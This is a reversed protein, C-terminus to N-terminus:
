KDLLQKVVGDSLWNAIAQRNNKDLFRIQDNKNQINGLEIYVTPANLNRLMFLNRTTVTGKYGRGPQNKDYKDKITEYFSNAMKRSQEVDEQYYFFIDIRKENPRSDLHIIITHQSKAKKLNAKYYSNIIDARQKLRITQVPSISDGNILYEDYSPELYKEDRIGDSTDRVIVYVTASHEMLARAFRLIFDYAYEDECLLHGGSKGTAGPDPGGHGSKLYFVHGKLKKDKIKVKQYTKGFLPEIVFSKKSSVDEDKSEDKITKSDKLPEKGKEAKPTKLKSKQPSDTPIIVESRNEENNSQKIIYLPVWLDNDQNYSRKIGKTQIKQNYAKIALITSEDYIKTSRSISNTFKFIQVPLKYKAKIILRGYKDFKGENLKNFLEINFDSASLSFRNLLVSIGEGAKSQVIPYKEQASLYCSAIMIISVILFRRFKEEFIKINISGLNHLM